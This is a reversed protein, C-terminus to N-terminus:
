NPSGIPPAVPSTQTANAIMQDTRWNRYWSNAFASGGQLLSSTAASFPSIGAASAQAGFANIGAITASADMGVKRMREAEAARITNSDITNKDIEKILDTTAEVEQTSGVGLQIGRAAMSARGASKTKGAALTSRMSANRGARMIQQAQLEIMGSNIEAIDQQFEYSLKQSELKLQTSKAGYYAGIASNAMGVLSMVPGLYGMTEAFAAANGGSAANTGSSM